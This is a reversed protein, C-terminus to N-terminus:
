TLGAEYTKFDATRLVQHRQEGERSHSCHIWGSNTPDAETPNWGELILQDVETILNDRIWQAVELNSVGMIEFDAAEGKCHQSKDSSGVARSVEPLRLGSSVVIPQGFHDRVPQLITHCLASLAVLHLPEPSNDIGLRLATSSYTLEKLTFSRSLRIM